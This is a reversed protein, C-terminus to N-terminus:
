SSVRGAAELDARLRARRKRFVRWIWSFLRAFIIGAVFTALLIVWLPAEWDWQLFSLAQTQTNSFVLMLTPVLLLVLTILPGAWLNPTKTAQVQGAREEPSSM